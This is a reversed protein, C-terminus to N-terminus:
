HCPLTGYPAVPSFQDVPLCADVASTSFRHLRFRVNNVSTGYLTFPADFHMLLDATHGDGNSGPDFTLTGEGLQANVATGAPTMTTSVLVVSFATQYQANLQDAHDTQFTFWPSGALYVQGFVFTGVFTGGFISDGAPFVELAVGSNPSALDTSAGTLTSQRVAYYDGSMDKTAQSVFIPQDDAFAVPSFLTVLTLLLFGLIVNKM